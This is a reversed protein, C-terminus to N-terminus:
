DKSVMNITDMNLGEIIISDDDGFSYNFNISTPKTWIYAYKVKDEYITGSTSAYIGISTVYEAGLDRMIKATHKAFNYVVGKISFNDVYLGVYGNVQVMRYMNALYPYYVKLLWEKYSLGVEADEYLELDWYPPSTFALSFAEEDDDFHEKEFYNKEVTFKSSIYENGEEDVERPALREVITKYRDQLNIQPDVGYYMALDLSIAAILRDGWGASPDLYTIEEPSKGMRSIMDKLIYIIYTPSLNNCEKTIGYVTERAEQSPGDALLINKTLENLGNWVSLPSPASATACSLRVDETFYDTIVDSNYYDQPFTRSIVAKDDIIDVSPELERLNNFIQDWEEDETIFTRRYPFMLDAELEITKTSFKNKLLYFNVPDTIRTVQGVLDAKLKNHWYVKDVPLILMINIPINVEANTEDDNSIKLLVDMYYIVAAIVEDINPPHVVINFEELNDVNDKIYEYIQFFSESGFRHEVDPFLGFAKLSSSQPSVLGEFNFDLKGVFRFVTPHLKYDFYKRHKDTTSLLLNKHRALLMYCDLEFNDGGYLDLLKQYLDPELRIDTLPHGVSTRFTYKEDITGPELLELSYDNPENLEQNAATIFNNIIEIFPEVVTHGSLKLEEALLEVDAPNLNPILVDNNEANTIDTPQQLFNHLFLCNTILLGGEAKRDPNLWSKFINKIKNMHILRGVSRDLTEEVTPYTIKDELATRFKENFEELHKIYTNNYVRAHTTVTSVGLVRSGRAGRTTGRTTDWTSGLTAGTAGLTGRGRFTGRTGRVGRSGRTAGRIGTTSSQALPELDVFDLALLVYNNKNVKFALLSINSMNNQFERNNNKDIYYTLNNKTYIPGESNRSKYKVIAASFVKLATAKFQELDNTKIKEEGTTVKLIKLMYRYDKLILAWNEYNVGSSQYWSGGIKKNDVYDNWINILTRVNSNPSSVEMFREYDRASDLIYPTHNDISSVLALLGPTLDTSLVLVAMRFSLPLNYKVFKQGLDLLKNDVDLLEYKKMLDVSVLIKEKAGLLIGYIEKMTYQYNLLELINYYLPLRNLESPKNDPLTIFYDQSTMYYYIGPGTRGTRGRRQLSSRISIFETVIRVDDDIMQSIKELLSDFVVGVGPITIAFEAINTAVVIKRKTIEDSRGARSLTSRFIKNFEAPNLKGHAPLLVVTKNDIQSALGKIFYEIQKKTALFILFDNDPLPQERHYETVVSILDDILGKDYVNYFKGHPISEIQYQVDKVTYKPIGAYISSEFVIGALVIKPIKIKDALKKRLLNYLIMQNITENTVDDLMIYDFKALKTMDTLVLNKITSDASYIIPSDTDLETDAIFADNPITLNLDEAVRRCHAVFYPLASKKSEVVLVRHGKSALYLPFAITKGTGTPADLAIIDKDLSFNYIDALHDVIVMELKDIDLDFASKDLDSIIPPPVITSSTSAVSRRVIRRPATLTTQPRQIVVSRVSPTASSSTAQSSAGQSSTSASKEIKAPVRALVNSTSKIAPVKKISKTYDSM